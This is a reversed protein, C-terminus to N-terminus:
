FKLRREGLKPHRKVKPKRESTEQLVAHKDSPKDFFPMEKPIYNKCIPAKPGVLRATELCLAGDGVVAHSCYGCDGCVPGNYASEKSDGFDVLEIEVDEPAMHQLKYFKCGNGKPFTNGEEDRYYCHDKSGSLWECSSCASELGVKILRKFCSYNTADEDKTVSRPIESYICDFVDPSGMSHPTDSIYICQGCIAEPKLGLAIQAIKKYKPIQQINPTSKSKKVVFDACFHGNIQAFSNQKKCYEMTVSGDIKKEYFFCEKCDNYSM